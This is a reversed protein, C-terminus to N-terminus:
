YSLAVQAVVPNLLLSLCLHVRIYHNYRPPAYGSTGFWALVVPGERMRLGFKKDSGRKDANM